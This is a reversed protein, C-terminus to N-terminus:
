VRGLKSLLFGILILAVTTIGYSFFLIDIMGEAAVRVALDLPSGYDSDKPYLDRIKARYRMVRWWQYVLQVGIPIALIPAVFAPATNWYRFILYVDVTVAAFGLISVVVLSVSGFPWAAPFSRGEASTGIDSM